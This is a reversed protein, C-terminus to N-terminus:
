IPTIGINRSGKLRRGQTRVGGGGGGGGGGFGGGGGGWGGGWGGGGGGGGGRGRQGRIRSPGDSERSTTEGGKTKVSKGWM